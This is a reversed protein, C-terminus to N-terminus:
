RGWWSWGADLRRRNALDSRGLRDGLGIAEPRAGLRIGGGRGRVASIYGLIRLRQAVKMMHNHSVRRADAVEHITVLRDRNRNLYVLLDLAYISFNPLRM